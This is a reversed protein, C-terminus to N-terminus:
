PLDRVSLPDILPPKIRIRKKLRSDQDIEDIPVVRLPDCGIHNCFSGIELVQKGKKTTLKLYTGYIEGLDSVRTQVDRPVEPVLPPGLEERRLILGGIRRESRMVPLIQFEVAM